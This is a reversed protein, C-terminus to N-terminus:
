VCSRMRRAQPFFQLCATTHWYAGHVCVTDSSPTGTPGHDAMLAALDDASLSASGELLQAFRQSRARSSQHVPRGRLPTPANDTYVAAQPIQVGQMCAGAFMNTHFLVDEGAAPRRLHSRTRSLELSAIDGDADALMLLGGGWRPREAIWDAAESVTGCRELAEGIVMSIPAGPATSRDTTYAYNYTICLGRENMGDVAGALPAVTFQM